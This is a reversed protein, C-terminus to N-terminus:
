QNEANDLIEKIREYQEPSLFGRFADIQSLVQNKNYQNNEKQKKIQKALEMALESESFSSYKEIVEKAKQEPTKNDAANCSQTNQTNAAGANFNNIFDKFDAM